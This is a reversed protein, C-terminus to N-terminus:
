YEGVNNENDVTNNFINLVVIKINHEIGWAKLEELLNQYEIYKGTNCVIEIYKKNRYIRKFLDVNFGNNIDFTDFLYGQIDKSKVKTDVFTLFLKCTESYYYWEEGYKGIRSWKKTEPVYLWLYNGCLIRLEEVQSLRKRLLDESEKLVSFSEKDMIPVDFIKGTVTSVRAYM